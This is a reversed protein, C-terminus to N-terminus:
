KKINEEIKYVYRNKGLKKAEYMTKDAKQIVDKRATAQIIGISASVKVKDHNLISKAQKLINDAVHLIAEKPEFFFGVFEDGGIRYFRNYNKEHSLLIKSFDQLVKNGEQHGLEDNVIKFDDLDIFLVHFNDKKYRQGYHYDLTYKNFIGTLSDRHSKIFLKEEEILFETVNTIFYANLKANKKVPVSNVRIWTRGHDNLIPLSINCERNTDLLQSSINEFYEKIGAVESYHNNHDFQQLIQDMTISPEDDFGVTKLNGTLVKLRLPKQTKDAYLIVRNERILVIDLLGDILYNRQLDELSNKLYKENM